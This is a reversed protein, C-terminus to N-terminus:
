RFKKDVWLERGPHLKLHGLEHAVTFRQRAPSQSREVGIIMAGDKRLLLGSVENNFRALQIDAGEGKAIEFVPVAPAKIRHKSLLEETLAEIKSYRPRLPKMCPRPSIDEHGGDQAM